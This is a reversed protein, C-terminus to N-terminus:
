PGYFGMPLHMTSALHVSSQMMVCWMKQGIGNFFDYMCVNDHKM